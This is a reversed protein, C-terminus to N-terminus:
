IQENTWTPISVNYREKVQSSEATKYDLGQLGQLGLLGVSNEITQVISFYVICSIPLM